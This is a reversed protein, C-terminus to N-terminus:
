KSVTRHAEVHTTGFVRGARRRERASFPPQSAVQELIVAKVNDIHLALLRRAEAADRRRMARVIELHESMAQDPRVNLHRMMEVFAYIREALQQLRLNGSREILRMHFRRDVRDFVGPRQDRPLRMAELLEQELADIEEDTMHALAQDLAYLEIMKRVDSIEEVDRASLRIVFFGVRPALEVLGEEVLLSLAERVPTRSVGFREALRDVHIKEGPKLRLNIIEDRLVEQVQKVLSSKVLSRM